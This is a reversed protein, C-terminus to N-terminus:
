FGKPYYLRWEKSYETDGMKHTIYFDYKFDFNKLLQVQSERYVGARQLFFGIAQHYPYIYNLKRLMASLKNVSVRKEAKRYANLVEHIGGSYTPRVVIDVLTREIDTLEINENEPTVMDIVGLRNTFKGNLICIKYDGISAINRSERQSNRFARDINTQLLTNSVYRKKPQEYNVYITKPIQDTLNHWYLATYHTFYTNRELGLALKYVSVDGWTFRWYKKRAFDLEHSKLNTSETLLEIFRPTTLSRQLRWFERNQDLIRSIDYYSLIEKDYGEFFSVIDSKAIQFRTLKKM